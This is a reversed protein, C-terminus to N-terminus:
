MIAQGLNLTCENIKNQKIYRVFHNVKIYYLIHIIYRYFAIFQM